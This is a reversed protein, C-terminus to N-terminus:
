VDKMMRDRWFGYYNQYWQSGHLNKTTLAPFGKKLDFRMQYGFAKRVKGARSDVDIGKDFCHKLAQLYEKM